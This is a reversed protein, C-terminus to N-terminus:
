NSRCSLAGLVALEALEAAVREDSGAKEYEATSDRRQKAERQLVGMAEDDTLPQNDNQKRAESLGTKVARLTLKSVQDQDRMAQTLDSDIREELSLSSM